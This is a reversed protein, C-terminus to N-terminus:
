RVGGGRRATVGNSPEPSDAWPARQFVTESSLSELFRVLDWKEADSLELPLLRRDLFRTAPPGESYRDIVEELTRIEGNHMYPPTRAVNRLSPTRYAGIDGDARTVWYRGLDPTFRFGAQPKKSTWAVGAHHFDFDTFFPQEASYSHCRICGAKGQFLEWGRRASASLAERDGAVFRDFASDGALLTREFSALAEAVRQWTVTADGFAAVFHPRYEPRGALFRVVREPTSSMELPNMVPYKVQDELSAARGDALLLPFYAVNVLTSANRAGDLGLIGTPLPKEDTFFREPQHCSACSVKGDASFGREYFLREGLASKAVTWPNEAPVQLPPLGKPPPPTASASLLGLGSLALAGLAQRQWRIM